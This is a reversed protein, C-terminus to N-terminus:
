APIRQKIKVPIQKITPITNTNENLYEDLLSEIAKGMTNMQELRNLFVANKDHKANKILKASKKITKLAPELERKMRERIFQHIMKTPDDELVYYDRRDNQLKIKRIVKWSLLERINMSANGRSIILYRCLDDLSLPEVSSFLLAYMKGMVKNMGWFGAIQGWTELFIEQSSNLNRSMRKVRKSTEFFVSVKNLTFSTHDLTLPFTIERQFRAELFM